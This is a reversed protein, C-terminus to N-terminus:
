GVERESLFKEIQEPRFRLAYGIKVSPIRLQRAWRYVTIPHLNLMAAVDRATLLKTAM